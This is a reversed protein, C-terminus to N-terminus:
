AQDVESGLRARVAPALYRSDLFSRAHTALARAMVDIRQSESDNPALLVWVRGRVRCIGSGPNSDGEGAAGGIERVELGAARALDILQELLAATEM